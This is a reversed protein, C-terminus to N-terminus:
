DDVIDQESIKIFSDVDSWIDKKFPKLLTLNIPNKDRIDNKQTVWPDFSRM